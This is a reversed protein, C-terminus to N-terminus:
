PVSEAGPGGALRAAAGRRLKGLPTVPLADVIVVQAPAAYAPLEARVLDRLEDLTPRRGGPTSLVVVAVVREGWEADALGVVAADGVSPHRRLIPEVAAPWVKEGGTNIVESFRGFVVLRGDDGLTGADGTALWGDDDVIAVDGDPGRYARGLMPGRLLIEGSGDIRVSVGDLARGDYVVGSGTETLGYTIVTNAAVGGSPPPGGGLVVIRFLAPDVRALATAVLSVLTPGDTARGAAMVDASSFREHVTLRTGTLLARTVVSLGGVHALPLCALWHDTAPDVGLRASTAEASAALAAHSLVVGKPSGTTGSTAVVLADDPEVPRGGARRHGVGDAGLVWSPRLAELLRLAAPRPLRPDVPLVADGAAWARTLAEVFRPGTLEVAVLSPV